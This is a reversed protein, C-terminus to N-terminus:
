RTVCHRTLITATDTLKLVSPALFVCEKAVVLKIKNYYVANNPVNENKIAPIYSDHIRLITTYVLIYEVKVYMNWCM